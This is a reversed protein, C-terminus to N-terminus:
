DALENHLNRAKLEERYQKWSEILMPKHGLHEVVIPKFVATQVSPVWRLKGGCACRGLRKLNRKIVEGKKECRDCEVDYRPV